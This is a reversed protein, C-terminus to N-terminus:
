SHFPKIWLRAWVVCFFSSFISNKYKLLLGLKSYQVVMVRTPFVHSSHWSWVSIMAFCTRSWAMIVARFIHKKAHGGHNVIQDHYSWWTKSSEQWPWWTKWTKYKLFTSNTKELKCFVILQTFSFFGGDFISRQYLTKAWSDVILM